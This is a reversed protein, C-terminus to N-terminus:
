REDAADLVDDLFGDLLQDVLDAGVARRDEDGGLPVAVLRSRRSRGGQGEHGARLASMSSPVGTPTPRTNPATPRDITISPLLGVLRSSGAGIIRTKTPVNPAAM